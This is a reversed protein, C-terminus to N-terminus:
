LERHQCTRDLKRLQKTKVHAMMSLLASLAINWKEGGGKYQATRIYPSKKDVHLIAFSSDNM